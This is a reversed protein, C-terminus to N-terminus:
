GPQDRRPSQRHGALRPGDRSPLERLGQRAVAGASGGHLLPHGGPDKEEPFFFPSSLSIGGAEGLGEAVIDYVPDSLLPEGQTGTAPDLPYVAWRKEPNLAAVFMLNDAADFGLLPIGGSHESRPLIPRWPNVANERYIARAPEGPALMGLRAVGDFDLDWHVVNGPNKTEAHAEGTLTEVRLIDPRGPNGGGAEHRDLMLISQDKDNFWHIVEHALLKASSVSLRNDEDGSIPVSSLADWKVALVGYFSDRVTTTVARRQDGIWSFEGGAKTADNALVAEGLDLRALKNEDIQYIHLTGRERFDRM